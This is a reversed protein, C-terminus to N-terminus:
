GGMEQIVTMKASELGEAALSSATTGGLEAGCLVARPSFSLQDKHEAAGTPDRTTVNLSPVM